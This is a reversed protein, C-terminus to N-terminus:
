SLLNKYKSQVPIEFPQDSERRAICAVGCEPPFNLKRSLAQGSIDVIGPSKGQSGPTLIVLALVQFGNQSFGDVYVTPSFNWFGHNISNLPASTVILGGKSVMDCMSKFANGVNFCHELTGCDILLDYKRFHEEPLEYNLDLIKEIERHAKIDFYTTSLGISRFVSDTEYYQYHLDIGPHSKALAETDAIPSLSDVFEDGMLTRFEPEPILVDLYSLSATNIPQGIETKTKIYKATDAVLSLFTHSIAM